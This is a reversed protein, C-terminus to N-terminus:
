LTFWTKQWSVQGVSLVVQGSSWLHEAAGLYGSDSLAHFSFAILLIVVCTQSAKHFRTM